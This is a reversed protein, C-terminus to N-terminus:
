SPCSNLRIHLRLTYLCARLALLRSCLEAKLSRGESALQVNFESSLSACFSNRLIKECLLQDNTSNNSSM